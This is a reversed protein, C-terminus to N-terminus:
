NRAKGISICMPSGLSWAGGCIKLMTM